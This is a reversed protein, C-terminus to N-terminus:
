NSFDFSSTSNLLRDSRRPFANWITPQDKNVPFPVVRTLRSCSILLLDVSQITRVGRPDSAHLGIRLAGMTLLLSQNSNWKWASVLVVHRFHISFSFSFLTLYIYM